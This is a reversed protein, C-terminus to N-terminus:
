IQETPVAARLRGILGDPDPDVSEVNYAGCNPCRAWRGPAPPETEGFLSAWTAELRVGDMLPEDTFANKTAFIPTKVSPAGDVSTTMYPLALWRILSELDEVRAEAEDLSEGLAEERASM